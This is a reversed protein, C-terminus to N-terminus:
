TLNSILNALFTSVPNPWEVRYSTGKERRANLRQLVRVQHQLLSDLVHRVLQCSPVAGNFLKVDSDLLKLRLDLVFLDFVRNSEFLNTLRLALNRLAFINFGGSRLDM